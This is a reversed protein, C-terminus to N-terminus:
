AGRCRRSLHSGDHGPRQCGAGREVLLAADVAKAPLTHSPDARHEDETVEAKGVDLPNAHVGTPARISSCSPSGGVSGVDVNSNESLLRVMETDGLYVWGSLATLGTPRPMIDFSNPCRNLIMKMMGGKRSVMALHASPKEIGPEDFIGFTFDKVIMSRMETWMLAPALREPHEYNMNPRYAPLKYRIQPGICVLGQMAKLLAPRGLHNKMAYDLSMLDYISLYSLMHQRNEEPLKLFKNMPLPGNFDPNGAVPTPM